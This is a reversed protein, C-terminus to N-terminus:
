DKDEVEAEPLPYLGLMQLATAVKGGVSTAYPREPTRVSWGNEEGKAALEEGPHVIVGRRCVALLPLDATSDTYGVSDPLV